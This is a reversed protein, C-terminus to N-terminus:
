SYIVVFKAWWDTVSKEYFGGKYGAALTLQSRNKRTAIFIEGASSQVKIKVHALDVVTPRYGYAVVLACSFKRSALCKGSEDYFVGPIIHHIKGEMLQIADLQIPQQSNNIILCCLCRSASLLKHNAEFEVLMRWINDDVSRWIDAAPITPTTQLRQQIDGFGDHCRQFIKASSLSPINSFIKANAVVGFAYGQLLNSNVAAVTTRGGQYEGVSSSDDTVSCGDDTLAAEAAAAAALGAQLKGDRPPALFLSPNGFRFACRYLREYLQAGIDRGKTPLVKSQRGSGAQSDKYMLCEVAGTSGTETLQCHSIECLPSKWVINNTHFAGGTTLTSVIGAAEFAAISNASGGSSQEVPANTMLFLWVHSIIVCQRSGIDVHYLFHDTYNGKKAARDVFAQARAAAQDVPVLIKASGDMLSREFARPPRVPQWVTVETIENSIGQALSAVGETVGLVPKMAVGVVGMGVGKMFGLAGDKRAGEMPKTVLGSIGSMLGGGVSKGADKLGSMFGGGGASTETRRNVERTKEYDADGSLLSAGKSINKTVGGLVGATSDLAGSTVNGVLGLTGKGLGKVVGQPSADMLGQYPEYLLGQVGGKVNKILGAPRGALCCVDIVNM